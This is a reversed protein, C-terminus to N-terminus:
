LTKCIGIIVDCCFLDTTNLCGSELCTALVSVARAARAETDFKDVRLRQYEGVIGVILRVLQKVVPTVNTLESRSVQTFTSWYACLMQEDFGFEKGLSEATDPM